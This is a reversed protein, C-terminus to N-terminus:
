PPPVPGGRGGMPGGPPMPAPASNVPQEEKGFPLEKWWHVAAFSGGYGLALFVLVLLFRLWARTRILSFVLCLLTIVGAAVIGVWMKSEFALDLGQEMDLWSFGIAWLLALGVACFSLLLLPLMVYWPTGPRGDEDDEDYEEEDYEAARRRRARPPEEDDDPEVVAARRRAPVVKDEDDPEAAKKRPKPLGQDEDEVSVVKKRAPLVEEDEALVATPVSEAAPLVKAPDAKFVAACAPCKIAQGVVTEPIKLRKQCKDCPIYVPM